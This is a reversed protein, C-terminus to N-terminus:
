RSSRPDSLPAPPVASLTTMRGSRSYYCRSLTMRAFCPLCRPSLTVPVSCPPNCPSLTVPVSCPPNCPSLTNQSCPRLLHRFSRRPSRPYPRLLRSHRRPSRRNRRLTNLKNISIAPLVESQLRIPFLRDVALVTQRQM